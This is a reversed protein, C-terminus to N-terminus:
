SLPGHVRMQASLQRIILFTGDFMASDDASAFTGSSFSEAAREAVRQSVPSSQQGRHENLRM